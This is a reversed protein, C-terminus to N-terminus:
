NLQLRGRALRMFDVGDDPFKELVLLGNGVSLLDAMATLLVFLWWQDGMRESMLQGGLSFIFRALPFAFWAWRESGTSSVSHIRM